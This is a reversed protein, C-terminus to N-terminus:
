FKETPRATARTGKNVHKKLLDGSCSFCLGTPLDPTINEDVPWDIATDSRNSSLSRLVKNFSKHNLASMAGRAGEFGCNVAALAQGFRLAQGIDSKSHSTFADAGSQGLQHIIGATCWDGSGAADKFVPPVFASYKVWRGNWRVSLGEDGQTKVIMKPSQAEGLDPIHGLRDSAYKLVHCLDIAEEFYREEPVSQPEFVILAGGEHAWRALKLTAPNARDFYYLNPCHGKEIVPSAHKRTMARYRPLWGKCDPCTLSFRHTRGGEKDEVFKQIVIPSVGKEELALDSVDVGLQELEDKIFRGAVDCRLRGAIKSNWGLWALISVVNGCSGGVAPFVKSSGEVLDLAIFGSGLSTVCKNPRKIDLDIRTM